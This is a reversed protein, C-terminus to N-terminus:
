PGYATAGYLVLRHSGANMTLTVSTLTKAPNAVINTGCLSATAINYGASSWRALNRQMVFTPSVAGNPNFWDPFAVTATTTTADSYNLTVTVSSPGETSTGYIQVASFQSPTVPITLTQLLTPPANLIISNKATSTDSFAFQATPHTATSAYLGNNPLGGSANAHATGLATTVFTYGSGDVPSLPPYTQGAPQSTAVTDVTFIASLDVQLPNAFTYLM